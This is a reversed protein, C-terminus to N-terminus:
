EERAKPHAKKYTERLQKLTVHTYKQTTSLSEHGLLEQITRLDAGAELLHTAFSHRFTHPTTKGLGTKLAWKRVVSQVGRQSLRDGFRNVFVAEVDEKQKERLFALRAPLYSKLAEQAYQGLPLLQQKNGKSLVRISDSDFDKLNLKVLPTVRIGTSYLVEFIAKDRLQLFDDEEPAELIERMQERSLFRPLSKSLKVTKLQDAPNNPIIGQEALYRFFSRIASLKRQVTQSGSEMDHLYSLFGRIQLAEVETIEVAPKEEATFRCPIQGRWDGGLYNYFQTLDRRYAKVTNESVHQAGEIHHLFQELLSYSDSEKM